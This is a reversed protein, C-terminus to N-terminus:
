NYYDKHMDKPFHDVICSFIMAIDYEDLITYLVKIGKIPSKIFALDATYVINNPKVNSEFDKYLNVMDKNDSIFHYIYEDLKDKEDTNLISGLDIDISSKIGNDKIYKFVKERIKEIGM